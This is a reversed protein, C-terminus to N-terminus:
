EKNPKNGNNTTTAVDQTASNLIYYDFHKGDGTCAVAFVDSQYNSEKIYLEGCDGVNKAALAKVIDSFKPNDIPSVWDKSYNENISLIQQTSEKQSFRDVLFFVAIAAAVLFLLKQNNSM